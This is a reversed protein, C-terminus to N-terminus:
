KQRSIRACSQDDCAACYLGPLPFITSETDARCYVEGGQGYRHLRNTRGATSRGSQRGGRGKRAPGFKPSHDVRIPDAPDLNVVHHNEVFVLPPGDHTRPTGFFYDFGIEVPGPKLEGNWDPEDKGRGFGNHWRGLAVTHYGASKLLSPLTVQGDHFYLAYDSELRAHWIYTGCLLAYRSPDCVSSISHADTFRVGEAALQDLRPTKIKTAGYCGLDRYGLDDAVMLVINPKTEGADAHQPCILAFLLAAAIFRIM